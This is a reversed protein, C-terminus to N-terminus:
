FRTPPNGPTGYGHRVLVVCHCKCFELCPELAERFRHIARRIFLLPIPDLSAHRLDVIRGDAIGNENISIHSRITSPIIANRIPIGCL